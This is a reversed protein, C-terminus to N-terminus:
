HLDPRKNPATVMNKLEKIKRDLNITTPKQEEPKLTLWTKYARWLLRQNATGGLFFSWMSGNFKTERNASVRGNLRVNVFDRGSAVWLELGTTHTLTYISGMMAGDDVWSAPDKEISKAIARADDNALKNVLWPSFSLINSVLGFGPAFCFVVFVLVLSIITPITSIINHM